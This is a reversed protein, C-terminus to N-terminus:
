DHADSLIGLVRVDANDLKVRQLEVLLQAAREWSTSEGTSDTKSWSLPSGSPDVHGDCSKPPTPLGTVSRVTLVTPSDSM